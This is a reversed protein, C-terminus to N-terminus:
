LLKEFDVGTLSRVVIKGGSRNVVYVALFLMLQYLMTGVTTYLSTEVWSLKGGSPFPCSLKRQRTLERDSSVSLFSEQGSSLKGLHFGAKIVRNDHGFLTTSCVINDVITEVINDLM